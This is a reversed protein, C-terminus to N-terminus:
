TEYHRVKFDISQSYLGLDYDRGDPGVMDRTIGLVRVGAISGSKFLLAVRAAELLAKVDSYNKGLATVQVRTDVLQQGALADIPLMEVASVVEYILAPMVTNQPLSVPYVRNSVLATVGADATLLANIVKEARM